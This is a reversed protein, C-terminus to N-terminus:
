LNLIIFSLEFYRTFRQTQLRFFNLKFYDLNTHKCINNGGKSTDGGSSLFVYCFAYELKLSSKFMPLIYTADLLFYNCLSFVMFHENNDWSFNLTGDLLAKSNTSTSSEYSYAPLVIDTSLSIEQM